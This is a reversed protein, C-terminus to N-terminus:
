ESIEYKDLFAIFCDECFRAIVKPNTYKRKASIAIMNKKFKEQGCGNCIGVYRDYQEPDNAREIYLGM